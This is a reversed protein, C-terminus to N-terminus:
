CFFVAVSGPDARIMTQGNIATATTTARTKSPRSTWFAPPALEGATSFRSVLRSNTPIVLVVALLLLSSLGFQLFLLSSLGFQLVVALVAWISFQSLSSLGFQFVIGAIQPSGRSCEGSAYVAFWYIPPCPNGSNPTPQAVHTATLWPNHPNRAKKSSFYRKDM